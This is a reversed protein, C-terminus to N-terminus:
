IVYVNYYLGCSRKSTFVRGEARRQVHSRSIEDRAGEDRKFHKIKLFVLTHNHTNKEPHLFIIYFVLPGRDKLPATHFPSHQETQESSLCTNPVMYPNSVHRLPHRERSLHNQNRTTEKNGIEKFRQM